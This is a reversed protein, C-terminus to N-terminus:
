WANPDFGTRRHAERQTPTLSSTGPAQGQSPGAQTSQTAPPVSPQRSVSRSRAVEAYTRVAAGLEPQVAAISAATFNDVTPQSMQQGADTTNAARKAEEVKLCCTQVITPVRICPPQHGCVWLIHNHEACIITGLCGKRGNNALTTEVEIHSPRFCRRVDCIHSAQHGAPVDAGTNAAAVLRHLSYM